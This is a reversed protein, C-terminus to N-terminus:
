VSRRRTFSGGAGYYRFFGRLIQMDFGLSFGESIHKLATLLEPSINGIRPVPRVGANHERPNLLPLHHHYRFFAKIVSEDTTSCFHFSMHKLARILEPTVTALRPLPAVGVKPKPKYKPGIKAKRKPAPKQFPESQFSERRKPIEKNGSRTRNRQIKATFIDRSGM